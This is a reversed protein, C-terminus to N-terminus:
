YISIGYAPGVWGIYDPSPSVGASAGGGIKPALSVLSASNAPLKASESQCSTHIFLPCPWTKGDAVSLGAVHSSAALSALSQALSAGLTV